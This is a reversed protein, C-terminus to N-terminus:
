GIKCGSAVKNGKTNVDAVCSTFQTIPKPFKIVDSYFLKKLTELEEPNNGLSCGIMQHEPKIIEHVLTKTVLAKNINIDEFDPKYEFHGREKMIKLYTENDTVKGDIYLKETQNLGYLCVILHM